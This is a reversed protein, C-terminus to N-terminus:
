VQRYRSVVYHKQTAWGLSLWLLPLGLLSLALARPTLRLWSLSIVVTSPRAISRVRYRKLISVSASSHSARFNPGRVSRRSTLSDSASPMFSGLKPRPFNRLHGLSVIITILQISPTELQRRPECFLVPLDDYSPLEVAFIPLSLRRVFAGRLSENLFDFRTVCEAVM